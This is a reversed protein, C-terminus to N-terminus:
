QNFVKEVEGVKKQVQGAVKESTGEDMLNPDNTHQGIKEKAKGKEEHYKGQIQDKTSQKMPNRWNGGDADRNGFRLGDVSTAETHLMKRALNLLVM